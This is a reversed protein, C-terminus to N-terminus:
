KNPDGTVVRRWQRVFESHIKDQFGLVGHTLESIHLHDFTPLKEVKWGKRSIFEHISYGSTKRERFVDDSNIESKEKDEDQEEQSVLMQKVDEIDTELDNTTIKCPLSAEEM